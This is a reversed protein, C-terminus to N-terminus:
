GRTAPHFRRGPVPSCGPPGCHRLGFAQQGLHDGRIWGTSAVELQHALQVHAVLIVLARHIEKVPRLTELWVRAGLHKQGDAILLHVLHLHGIMEQFQGPMAIWVIGVHLSRQGIVVPLHAFVAIGDRRQLCNAVRM